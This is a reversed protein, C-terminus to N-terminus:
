IKLIGCYGYSLILREDFKNILVLYFYLSLFFKLFGLNVFFYLFYLFNIFISSSKKKIKIASFDLLKSKKLFRYLYTTKM